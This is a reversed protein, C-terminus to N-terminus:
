DIQANKLSILSLTVLLKSQEPKLGNKQVTRVLKEILKNANTSILELISSILATKLIIKVLLKTVSRILLIMMKAASTKTLTM